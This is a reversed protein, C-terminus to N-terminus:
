QSSCYPQHGDVGGCEPCAFVVEPEPAAERRAQEEHWLENCDDRDEPTEHEHAVECLYPPEKAM